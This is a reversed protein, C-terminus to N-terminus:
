STVIVVVALVAFAANRAVHRWGLPRASWAGFCACPPRRGQRLTHLVLVTFAVLTALGVGASVTPALGAAIAAGLVLEFWPVVTAITPAVGLQTAQHPWHRGAAVKSAGALVFVAGLAVRAVFHVVDV